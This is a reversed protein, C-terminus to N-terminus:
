RGWILYAGGGALALGGVVWAWTPIGGTVEEGGEKKSVRNAITSVLDYYTGSEDALQQAANTNTIGLCIWFNDDEPIFKTPFAMVYGATIEPEACWAVDAIAGKDAARLNQIEVDEALVAYLATHMAVDWVDAGGPLGLAERLCPLFRDVTM